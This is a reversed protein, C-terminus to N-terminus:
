YGRTRFLAAHRNTLFNKLASTHKIPFYYNKHSGHQYQYVPTPCESTLLDLYHLGSHRPNLSIPIILERFLSGASRFYASNQLQRTTPIPDISQGCIIKVPNEKYRKLRPYEELAGLARKRHRELLVYYVRVKGTTRVQYEVRRSPIGSLRLSGFFLGTETNKYHFVGSTLDGVTIFIGDGKMKNKLKYKVVNTLIHRAPLEDLIQQVRKDDGEKKLQEIREKDEYDQSLHGMDIGWERLKRISKRISHESFGTNKKIEGISRAGAVVQEKVGLSTGGRAQSIRERSDQPVPKKVLLNELTHSSRLDQSSNEWLAEIFGRYHLSTNARTDNDYVKKAIDELTIGDNFTYTVGINIRKEGIGEHAGEEIAKQVFCQRQAHLEKRTKEKEVM